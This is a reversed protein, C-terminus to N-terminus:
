KKAAKAKAADRRAIYQARTEGPRNAEGDKWDGGSTTPAHPKAAPLDKHSPPPKPAPYTSM